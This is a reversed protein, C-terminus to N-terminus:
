ILICHGCPQEDDELHKCTGVLLYELKSLFRIIDCLMNVAGAFCRYLDRVGGKSHILM